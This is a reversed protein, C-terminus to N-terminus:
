SSAGKLPITVLYRTNTNLNVVPVKLEGVLGVPSLPLFVLGEASAGVRVVTAQLEKAQVSNMRAPLENRKEADSAEKAIFFIWEFIAGLGGVTRLPSFRPTLETAVFSSPVPDIRQDDIGTFVFDMPNFQIPSQGENRIFVLVGSIGPVKMGSDQSSKKTEVSGLEAAVSVVGDYYVEKRTLGGEQIVRVRQADQSATVGDFPVGFAWRRLEPISQFSSSFQWAAHEIALEVSKAISGFEGYLGDGAEGCGRLKWSFILKRDLSYLNFRYVVEAWYPGKLTKLPFSFADIQPELIADLDKGNTEWNVNENVYQFTQFTSPYIERFLKDSAQGIPFIFEHKNGYADASEQHRMFQPGHYIGIRRSLETSTPKPALQPKLSLTSACGVLMLFATTALACTGLRLRMKM